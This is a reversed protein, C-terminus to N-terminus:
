KVGGCKFDQEALGQWIEDLAKKNAVRITRTGAGYFVGATSATNGRYYNKGNFAVYAGGGNINNKTRFVLIM